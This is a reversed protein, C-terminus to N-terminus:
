STRTPCGATAPRPSCRCRRSRSRPCGCNAATRSNHRVGVLGQRIAPRRHRGLRCDRQRAAHARHGADRDAVTRYDSSRQRCCSRSSSCCRSGAPDPSCWRWCAWRSSASRSIRWRPSGSSSRPRIPTPMSVGVDHALRHMTADGRRGSEVVRPRRRSNSRQGTRLSGDVTICARPISTTIPLRTSAASARAPCLWLMSACGEYLLWSVPTKQQGSWNSIWFRGFCSQLVSSM